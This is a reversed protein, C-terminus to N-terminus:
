KLASQSPLQKWGKTVYTSIYAEYKEAKIEEFLKVAYPHADRNQEVYFNFITTEISIKPKRM